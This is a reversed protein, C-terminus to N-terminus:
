TCISDVMQEYEGLLYMKEETSYESNWDTMSALLNVCVPSFAHVRAIRALVERNPTTAMEALPLQDCYMLIDRFFKVSYKKFEFPQERAQIAMVRIRALYERITFLLSPRATELTVVSRAAAYPNEGYIVVASALVHVFFPGKTGDQFVLSGRRDFIDGRYMISLDVDTRGQLLSSLAITAERDPRDMIIQLDLDSRNHLDVNRSASGIWLIAILRPRIAQHATM